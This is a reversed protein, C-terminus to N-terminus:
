SGSSHWVTWTGWSWRGEHSGHQRPLAGQRCPAARACRVCCGAGIQEAGHGAAYGGVQGEALRRRRRWNGCVHRQPRRRAISDWGSSVGAWGVAEVGLATERPTSSSPRSGVWESTQATSIESWFLPKIPTHRQWDACGVKWPGPSGHSRQLEHLFNTMQGDWGACVGGPGGAPLGEPPPGGSGGGPLGSGPLAAEGGGAPVPAAM